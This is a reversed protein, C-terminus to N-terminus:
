NGNIIQQIWSVFVSTKAYVGPYGPEACGVGWSTVGMQKWRVYHEEEEAGAIPFRCVLPGGSDGQCSDKGPAGACIMKDTIDETSYSTASRCTETGIYPTGVQMLVSSVSGGFSTVGWGTANCHHGDLLEEGEYMPLCILTIQDTLDVPNALKLLAIDNNKTSDDYQAHVHISDLYQSVAGPENPDLLDHAGIRVMVAGATTDDVCHAATLVWQPHVLSGGCFHSGGTWSLSVMWPWAHPPSEIGGVIRNRVRPSLGCEVPNVFCANEDSGDECDTVGDCRKDEDVCLGNDCAFRGALCIIEFRLRFGDGVVSYDSHFHITVNGSSAISSVPVTSNGCVKSDIMFEDAVINGDYFALWDYQCPSSVEISREVVVVRVRDHGVVKWYCNWDNWYRSFELNENEGNLIITPAAILPFCGSFYHQLASLATGNAEPCNPSGTCTSTETLPSNACTGPVLCYRERQKTGTGCSVSCSGWQSWPSLQGTCDAGCAQIQFNGGNCDTEGSEPVPSNCRRARTIMGPSCPNTCDTWDTWPSWGSLVCGARVGEDAADPCHPIGDCINDPDVCEGNTCLFQQSTPLCSFIRAKFGSRVISGDSYFRMLTTTGKELLIPQPINNGTRKAIQQDSTSNGAYLYVFDYGQELNFEEFSLLTEEEALIIWFCNLGNNYNVGPFPELVYIATLIAPNGSPPCSTEQCSQMACASTETNSGSCTNGGSTPPPKDCQRLRSRTGEGCTASCSSWSGWTGWEGHVPCPQMNCLRSKYSIGSCPNGISSPPPDNCQRSRSQVGGGCTASCNSWSSWTSWGGHVICPTTNCQRSQDGSGSCTNGGNSPPPSDCQRERNQIGEGCTVSCTSWSSWSSWEGHVVGGAKIVDYSLVFGAKRVSGDTEFVLMMENSHTKVEGSIDNLKGCWTGLLFKDQVSSGAYIKLHDWPCSSSGAEVDFMIARLRIGEGTQSKISWRCNLGNDYTAGAFPSLIGPVSYVPTEGSCGNGGDDVSDVTRYSFQFGRGEESVDSHFKITLDNSSLVATYEGGCKKQDSDGSGTILLWDFLCNNSTHGELDMSISSLLIKRGPEPHIHWICNANSPYLGPFGPSAFSGQSDYLSLGEAAGCATAIPNFVANPDVAEWVVVFGRDSISSDSRFMVYGVEHTTMFSVTPDSLVGCLKTLRPSSLDEGNHISVYDYACSLHDEVAFSQFHFRIVKGVPVTIMWACNQSLDYDTLGLTGGNGQLHEPRLHSECAPPTTLSVAREYRSQSTELLGGETESGIGMLVCQLVILLPGRIPLPLLVQM